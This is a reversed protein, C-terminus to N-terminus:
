RCSDIFVDHVKSLLYYKEIMNLIPIDTYYTVAIPAHFRDEDYLRVTHIKWM